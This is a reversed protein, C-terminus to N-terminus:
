SSLHAIPPKWSSKRYIVFKDGHAQCRGLWDKLWTKSMLYTSGRIDNDTPVFDRLLDLNRRSMALNCPYDTYETPEWLIFRRGEPWYVWALRYGNEFQEGLVSIHNVKAQGYNQVLNQMQDLYHPYGKDNRISFYKTKAICSLSFIFL